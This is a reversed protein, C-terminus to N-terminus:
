ATPPLQIFVDVLPGCTVTSAMSSIWLNRLKFEVVYLAAAATAAVAMFQIPADAVGTQLRNCTHVGNIGFYMIKFM